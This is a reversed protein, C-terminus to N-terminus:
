LETPIKCTLCQENVMARIALRDRLFDLYPQKFSEDLLGFEASKFENLLKSERKPSYKAELLTSFINDATKPYECRVSDYVFVKGTVEGDEFGGNEIETSDVERINHNFLFSGQGNNLEFIVSPRERSVLDVSLVNQKEM